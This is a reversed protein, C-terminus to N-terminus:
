FMFSDSPVAGVRHATIEDVVAQRVADQTLARSKIGECWRQVGGLQELVATPWESMSQQADELLRQARATDGAWSAVSILDEYVEPEYHVGPRQMHQLSAEVFRNLSVPGAFPLPAQASLRAAADKFREEHRSVDIIEPANTRETRLPQALSLAITPFRRGLNQVHFTPRYTRGSSDRELLVGVLLPGVRRLLHLPKYIGM